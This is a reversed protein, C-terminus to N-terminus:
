LNNYDVFNCYFDWCSKKISFYINNKFTYPFAFSISYNFCNQFSYYFYLFLDVQSGSKNYLMAVTIFVTTNASLYVCIDICYFLSSLFLGVCTCGVAKRFFLHLILETYSPYDRWCIICSSIWLGFIFGQGLDWLQYM